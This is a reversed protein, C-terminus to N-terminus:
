GVRAATARVAGYTRVLLPHGTYVHFRRCDFAEALRRVMAERVSSMRAPRRQERALSSPPTLTEPDTDVYRFLNMSPDVNIYAGFYSIWNKVAVGVAAVQGGRGWLGFRGPLQRGTFGIDASAAALGAQLRRLHDGVTFGHWALPVIPYVALQGPLHLLCGGGRNVWRLELGRQELERQDLHVHARSGQRGLTLSLPHECILLSIQGDDRGAAEYVLRQQLALCSAYDVLGLLYTEVALDRVPSNPRASPM